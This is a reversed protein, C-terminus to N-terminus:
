LGSILARLHRGFRDALLVQRSPEAPEAIESARAQAAKRSQHSQHRDTSRNIQRRNTIRNTFTVDESM